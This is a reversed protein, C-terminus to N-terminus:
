ETYFVPKEKFYNEWNMIIDESYGKLAKELRNIDNQPIQSKNHEQKVTGDELIWYKTANHTPKGKCIHVHVPELPKREDSWFFVLYGYLYRVRPIANPMYVNRELKLSLAIQSVKKM